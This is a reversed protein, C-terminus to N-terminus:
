DLLCPNFANDRTESLLQSLQKMDNFVIKAEAAALAAGDNHHADLSDSIYKRVIELRQQLVDDTQYREHWEFWDKAM